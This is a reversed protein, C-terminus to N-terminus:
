DLKMAEELKKDHDNTMKKLNTELKAITQKTMMTMHLKERDAKQKVDVMDKVMDRFEDREKSIVKLREELDVKEDQIV